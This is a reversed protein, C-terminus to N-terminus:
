IRMFSFLFKPIEMRKLGQEEKEQDYRRYITGTM